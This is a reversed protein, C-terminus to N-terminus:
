YFYPYVYMYVCMNINREWPIDSVTKRGRSTPRPAETDTKIFILPFSNM